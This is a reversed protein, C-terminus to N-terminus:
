LNIIDKFFNFVPQSVYEVLWFSLFAFIFAFFMGGIIDRPYHVGVYVRSLAIMLSLCVSIIVILGQGGALVIIITLTFPILTHDSPFSKWTQYTHLLQKVEAIEAIPRRHPWITALIWSFSVAFFLATLSLKLFNKLEIPTLFYVGWVIALFIFIYILWQACFFALKDFFKSKGVYSNIRLFLKQSWSFDM